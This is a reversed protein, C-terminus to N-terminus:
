KKPPRLRTPESARSRIYVTNCTAAVDLVFWGVIIFWPSVDFVYRISVMTALFLLSARFLVVQWDVFADAARALVPLQLALAVALWIALILLIWQQPTLDSM